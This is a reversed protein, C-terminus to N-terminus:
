GAAVHWRSAAELAGGRGGRCRTDDPPDGVARFYGLGRLVADYSRTPFSLQLRAQHILEGTTRRRPLGRELLYQEGRRLAVVSAPSGGTAREHELLGELVTITIAFSSRRSGREAECNWGGDGLQEGLLGTVVGEVDEGFAAGVTVAMGNVWPEVEGDFFPQDGEEWRSRGVHAIAGRAADQQGDGGQLALLRVGWGETAM